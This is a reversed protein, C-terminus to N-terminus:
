RRGHPKSIKTNFAKQFHMYRVYNWLCDFAIVASRVLLGLSGSVLCCRHTGDVFCMTTWTCQRWMLWSLSGEVVNMGWFGWIRAGMRRFYVMTTALWVWKSKDSVNNTTPHPRKNCGITVIYGSKSGYDCHITAM